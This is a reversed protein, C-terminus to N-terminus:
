GPRGAVPRVPAVQGVGRERPRVRSVGRAVARFLRLAAIGIGAILLLPLALAVLPIAAVLLLAIGPLALPALAMTLIGGGVLWNSAEDFIEARSPGNM